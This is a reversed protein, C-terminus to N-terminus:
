EDGLRHLLATAAAQEAARKSPATARATAGNSLRAEVTFEPAHDPGSRAVTDYLPPPMARGQAWEQLMTKSDQPAAGQTAMRPEWLRLVAERAADPGADLYIAAVVAEMADGLITMRKRGGSAAESRALRLYQGLGISEAIEACTEKRVLENLRLALKGEAEDPWRSLVAEAIILGLVRDGLFELRQYDPRARTAASPHTLAEDLRQAGITAGLRRCLAQPDPAAM